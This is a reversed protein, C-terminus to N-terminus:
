VLMRVGLWIKKQTGSDNKFILKIASNAPAAYVYTSTGLFLGEKVESCYWDKFWQVDNFFLDYHDDEGYGSCTLTIALIECDVSPLNMTFTYNDKLAPIEFEEMFNYPQTKTAFGRIKGIENLYKVNEVDQLNDINKINDVNEVNDLKEIEELAIIKKVKDIDGGVNYNATFSGSM